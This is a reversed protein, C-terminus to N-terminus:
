VFVITSTVRERERGKTQKNVLPTEDDDDDNRMGFTRMCADGRKLRSLLREGSGGAM